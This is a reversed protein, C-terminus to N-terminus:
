FSKTEAEETLKERLAELKRQKPKFRHIYEWRTLLGSLVFAAAIGIWKWLSVDGQSMNLFVLITLPVIFWWVMNKSRRVEYNVNAIAHNLDGLMTLAFAQEQKKRRMRGFWVYGTIFLLAVVILYDYVNPTDDIISLNSYVVATVIGIVILGWDNINTLRAAKKKTSKISRHLAKENIAHLPEDKQQDWIRKMEEFEM